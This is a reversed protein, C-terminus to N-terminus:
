CFRISAVDTECRPWTSKLRKSRKRVQLWSCFITATPCSSRGGSGATQQPLGTVDIRKPDGGAAPVAYLGPGEGGVAAILLTGRDSWSGGVMTAIGNAILESAGDPVRMKKLNTGDSFVFSRSDPSWFGPNRYGGTRVPEPTLTNLRQVQVSGDRLPRPSTEM